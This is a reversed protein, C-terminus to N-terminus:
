RMKGQEQPNGINQHITDFSRGHESQVRGGLLWHISQTQFYTIQQHLCSSILHPQVQSDKFFLSTHGNLSCITSAFGPSIRGCALSGRPHQGSDLSCLSLM